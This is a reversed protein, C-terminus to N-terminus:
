IEKGGSRKRGGVAVEENEQTYTNILLAFGRSTLSNEGGGNEKVLKRM